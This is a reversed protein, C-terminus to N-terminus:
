NKRIWEKEGCFMRPKDQYWIVNCKKIINDGNILVCYDQKNWDQVYVMNSENCIKNNNTQKDVTYIIGGFLIILFSVVLALTIM